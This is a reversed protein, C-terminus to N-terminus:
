CFNEDAIWRGAEVGVRLSCECGGERGRDPHTGGELFWCGVGM